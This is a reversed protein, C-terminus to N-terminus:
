CGAARLADILRLRNGDGSRDFLIRFRGADSPSNRAAASEGVGGRGRGSVICRGTDGGCEGCGDGCGGDGIRRLNRGQLDLDGGQGGDGCSRKCCGCASSVVAGQTLGTSGTWVSESYGGPRQGRSQSQGAAGSGDCANRGAWSAIARDCELDGIRCFHGGALCYGDSHVRRRRQGDGSGRQGRTCGASGIVLRQM